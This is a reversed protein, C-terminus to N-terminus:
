DSKKPPKKPKRKRLLGLPMGDCCAVVHMVIGGKHCLCTCDHRGKM